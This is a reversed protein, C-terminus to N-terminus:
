VKNQDYFEAFITCAVVTCKREGVKNIKKMSTCLLFITDCYCYDIFIKRMIRVRIARMNVIMLISKM